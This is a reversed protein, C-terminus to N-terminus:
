PTHKTLKQIPEHLNKRAWEDVVAAEAQASLNIDPKAVAAGWPSIENVLVQDEKLDYLSHDLEGRTFVLYRDGVLRIHPNSKHEGAESYNWFLVGKTNHGERQEDTLRSGSDIQYVYWSRDDFGALDTLLVLQKHMEPLEVIQVVTKYNNNHWFYAAVISNAIVPWALVVVVIATLWIALRRFM